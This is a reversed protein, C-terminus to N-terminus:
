CARGRLALRNVAAAAKPNGRLTNEGIRPRAAAQERDDIRRGVLKDGLHFPMGGFHDHRFFALRHLCSHTVGVEFGVREVISL